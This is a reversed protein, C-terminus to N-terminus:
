KWQAHFRTPAFEFLASYGERDTYTVWFEGFAALLEEQAVGAVEAGCKVMQYTLDDPYPEMRAFEDAEIGLRQRIAEWKDPGHRSTMLERFAANVLGYM